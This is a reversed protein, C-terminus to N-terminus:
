VLTQAYTLKPPNGTLYLSGHPPKQKHTKLLAYDLNIKTM